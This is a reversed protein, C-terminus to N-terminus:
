RKVGLHSAIRAVRQRTDELAGEMGGLVLTISAVQRALLDISGQMSRSHGTSEVPARVPELEAPPTGKIPTAGETKERLEELEAAATHFNASSERARQKLGKVYRILTARPDGGPTIDLEECLGVYVMVEQAQELSGALYGSEVIEPPEYPASPFVEVVEIDYKEGKVHFTPPEKPPERRGQGKGLLCEQCIVVDDQVDRSCDMEQCKRM